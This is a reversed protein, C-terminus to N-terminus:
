GRSAFMHMKRIGLIGQLLLLLMVVEFSLTGVGEGNVIACIGNWLAWLTHIVFLVIAVKLKKRLLAWYFGVSAALLPLALLCGVGLYILTDEPSLEQAARERVTIVLPALLHRFIPYFAAVRGIRLQTEPKM